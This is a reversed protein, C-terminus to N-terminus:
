WGLGSVRHYDQCTGRRGHNMEVGAETFQTTHNSFVSAMKLGEVLSNANLHFIEFSSIYTVSHDHHHAINVSVSIPKGELRTNIILGVIFCQGLPLSDAM